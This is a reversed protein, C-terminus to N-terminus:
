IYGLTEAVRFTLIASVFNTALVVPDATPDKNQM